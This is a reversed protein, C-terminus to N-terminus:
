FEIKYDTGRPIVRVVIVTLVGEKDVYYMIRYSGVRYRWLGKFIGTLPKANYYPDGIEEIKSLWNLIRAQTQKDLKLLDKKAKKRIEIKM